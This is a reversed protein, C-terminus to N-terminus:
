YQYHDLELPLKNIHCIIYTLCPIKPIIGGCNSVGNGGKCNATKSGIILSKGTGLKSSNSKSSCNALSFILSERSDSLFRWTDRIYTFFHSKIIITSPIDLDHTQRQEYVRALM